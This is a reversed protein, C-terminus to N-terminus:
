QMSQRLVYPMKVTLEEEGLRLVLKGDGVDILARANALILPVQVNAEMDIIVFDAPLIFDHVKVLVDEM